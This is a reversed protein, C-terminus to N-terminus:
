FRDIITIGTGKFRDMNALEDPAKELSITKKVLKEPSLKGARILALLAPYKHAQM